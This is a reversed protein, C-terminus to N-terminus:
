SNVLLFDVVFLRTQGISMKMVLIKLFHNKFSQSPYTPIVNKDILCELYTQCGKVISGSYRTVVVDSDVVTIASTYAMGPFSWEM